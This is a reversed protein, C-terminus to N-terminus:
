RDRLLSKVLRLPATLRWSISSRLDAVVLNARDLKWKAEELERTRDALDRECDALDARVEDLEARLDIVAAQARDLEQLRESLERLRADRQELARAHRLEAGRTSAAETNADNIRDVWWKVEFPDGLVALTELSPLDGNSAVAITFTAERSPAHDELLRVTAQAGGDRALAAREETSGSLLSGLWASQAHLRVNAFHRRLETELEAPTFEHVHFENGPLYEAPNPSSILLVGGPRLVRALEDIAQSSNELHEIVEFCVVLDVCDDDFPLARLDARAVEARGETAAETLAIAEEAVDVALLRGPGAAALIATGYGTGCGADLVDVGAALQAAWSYRAIHESQVLKGADAGPDFREPSGSHTIRTANM